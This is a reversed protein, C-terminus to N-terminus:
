KLNSGEVRRIKMTVSKISVPEGSKTWTDWHIHPQTSRDQDLPSGNLNARGCQNFWWGTNNHQVSCSEVAKGDFTCFPICGDNDVDSTSFPATDQNQEQEYGRFADGASGAYRGLHIAFFKSEDELWFNDYSAYATSDDQSVFSVQLKFRTNKQSVISHVKRLGLWHEGSLPGFGDLYNSWARKFDTLGDTRRQIVTWGGEMYDMECFVEFLLESNDPQIIYVGSPIKPTVAELTEKIDSCDRGHAHMPKMSFMESNSRQVDLSLSHVKTTLEMVQNSLFELTKQQEDILDRILKRTSRTYTTLTHQLNSCWSHKEDQMLKATMECPVTCKERDVNRVIEEKQNQASADKFDEALMMPEDLPASNIDVTMNPLALLNSFMHLWFLIIWIM